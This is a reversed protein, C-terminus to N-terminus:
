GALAHITSSPDMGQAPLKFPDSMTLSDGPSGEMTLLQPASQPASQPPAAQSQTGAQLTLPSGTPASVPLETVSAGNVEWIHVAGTNSVWLLDSNADGAFNGVGQLRWESGDLGNLHLTNAIHGNTMEWITVHNTADVWVIDSTKSGMQGQPTFHGVGAFRGPATGVNPVFGSLNAGNMEWIDVAGSTSEWLVDARGDQNFDGTGLVSWESGMAGNSVAFGALTTGNMTWVAAQGGTSTWLLDSKGDGNFDGIAALHWESGMKGAPVGFGILNPGNLEWIAAQGATSTWALDSRGDGNFDGTGFASWEPGMAGPVAFQTLTGNTNMWLTAQGGGNSAWAIDTRGNADFDGTGIYRLSAAVAAVTATSNATATATGPTDDTLTVKVTNQGVAAFSHTGSVTFSGNSGIVTGVSTTGDGWNITATFDGAVNLTDGDSFTAVTGSFSQNQMAAISVAHPTLADAEAVAVNGSATGSTNDSTRVLTVSLPESGEDSYAHGGEVTFSGNTGVVTGTTTTGDGWQITATFSNAQDSLNGDSFTAVATNSPLAVSETASTLVAQGPLGIIASGDIVANANGPADDSISVATTYNGANAYAHSGSVSYTTGSATVTGVSTTGDGWDITAAFDGPVNTSDFLTAMTVNSFTQGPNGTLTTANLPGLADKEAVNAHATDTVQASDSNRTISVAVPLNAFEDAYTHGGEVTFKGNSGVVTGNTIASGDGWNITATFGNAQDGLNNDTFTGIVTTGPLAVTETTNITVPAGAALGVFVTSTATATATGPTDDTLKVTVTDQGATVYTHTGSVSFTSGSGSVTGVSTTGDGWNITAAFDAASNGGNSDTFTAVTGTFAVNTNAGITQGNPTLLDSEAVNASATDAVQASDSNRTISVTVPLNAFEDAYTHGGEVTFSGNSGVLTGSSPATGDGWNITATFGNAQDSLNNDTFTGIVTTGPLAVTETTNITVPAGAALGVFVTSTATATATGPTDDTLQVTVTDQGPSTYTHTGSVSFTNGSGSVTGASSTGDGWNITAAFDAAVNGGNTDTFTAVTGSFAVNTNAGITQGNPTLADNEAVDISGNDAVQASDSNRTISVAVPLNAFEDAYTHGGDVTFSGNSGVVTGTTTTGDGWNITATFGNAPDSLTGDTFTAIATNGALAVNETANTLLLTGSALGIFATSHATASDTGPDDDTLTVTVADQGAAAYTHSGSVSFTAGSGSVTGVSSTGDGWDITATFDAATNGANNDNFTAVLANNILVNPQGGITKSVPTLLDAEAVAVTGQPTATTNDTTRTITVTVQPDGEDAYTHDGLVSFSGSAGVVTGSTTQGDGWDISATFNSATNGLNSDAFTAITAGPGIEQGESAASLVVHGGFGVGILAQSTASGFAADAADDNVFVTITDDGNATYTHSGAVTFSGNSGSVTGPTTTGDGWDISIAFDGAINATNSTTFTAVKVNTLPQNPNGTLTTGHAIINDTDAVSIIGSPAIQTNDATRTITVTAQPSSEDAYTHGGEVTFLGNSGVVTGPTTTGDGWDIIATFAANTDAHNNDTFSAVDTNAPLAVDETAAGLDMQGSLITM